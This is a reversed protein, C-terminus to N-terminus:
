PRYLRKGDRSTLNYLCFPVLGGDPAVVHICCDRVRELDLNWADQFAMASVSLTRRSALAIFDDLPILRGPEAPRCCSCTGEESGGPGPSAWSRATRAIARLAGQEAPEPPPRCGPDHAPSLPQVRGDAHLLFNGQFSCLSNECGPPRFSAAPFRGKTQSEIARMLEPLTLRDQESLGKPYRGFRSLPQFHVGRVTPSHEVALELIPGAQDLNLGAAITPVLVVGLGVERCAELARLKEALLPRGRLRRYVRDSVADFQLFVSSLGARVLAELYARDRGLRLGNTNIQIFDFGLERGLAVIEPLDDRGAPEGGSLQINCGSAARRVARFWEEILALGPEPGGPQPSDAYCVPCGLDCGRAVELVATCTRQRHEPCLGCDFPCGREVPHGYFELRAPIKPRRWSAFEPPGRWILTRFRGHEPCDKVQYVEQGAEERWAPILRLCDPCLSAGPEPESAV